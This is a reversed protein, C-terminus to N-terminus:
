IKRVPDKLLYRLTASPFCGICIQDFPTKENSWYSIDIKLSILSISHETM